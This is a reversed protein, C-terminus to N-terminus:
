AMPTAKVTETEDLGPRIFSRAEPFQIEAMKRLLELIVLFDLLEDEKEPFQDLVNGWAAISRDIAILAVKASGHVDYLWPEDNDMEELQGSLARVLKVHIFFQYWQIVDFYDKIRSAKSLIEDEPFGMEAQQIWGDKMEQFFGKEQAIWKSLKKIYKKSSKGILSKAADKQHQRRRKLEEEIEADDVANLDIGRDEAVQLIMERTKKFIASLENWFEESNLDHEPNKASDPMFDYNRCKSTFACRECWRDCYNFIGAIFQNNEEM